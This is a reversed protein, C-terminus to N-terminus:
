PSKAGATGRGPAESRAGAARTGPHVGLRVTLRDGKRVGKVTAPPLQLEVDGDSTKLTMTGRAENVRTVEGRVTRPGEVGPAGPPAALASGVALMCGGALFWALVRRRM